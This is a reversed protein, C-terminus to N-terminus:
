RKRRAVTGDIIGDLVSQELYRFPRSLVDNKMWDAFPAKCLLEDSVSWYLSKDFGYYALEAQAEALEGSWVTREVKLAM